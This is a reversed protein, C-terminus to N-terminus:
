KIYVVGTVNASSAIVYLGNRHYIGGDGAGVFFEKSTGALLRITKVLVGAASPLAPLAGGPDSTVTYFKVTQTAADSNDFAWGCIEVGSGAPLNGVVQGASTIAFAHLSM